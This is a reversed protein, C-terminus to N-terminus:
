DAVIVGVIQWKGGAEESSRGSSLAVSAASLLEGITHWPRRTLAELEDEVHSDVVSALRGLVDDALAYVNGSAEDFPLEALHRRILRAVKAPPSSRELRAADAEKEIRQAYAMAANVYCEVAVEGVSRERLASALSTESGTGPSGSRVDIAAIVCETRRELGV